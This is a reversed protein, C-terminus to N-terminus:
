QGTSWVHFRKRGCCRLSPPSSLARPSGSQPHPLRLILRYCTLPRDRLSLLFNRHKSTFPLLCMNITRSARYLLLITDLVYSCASTSVFANCIDCTLAEPCNLSDHNDQTKFHPSFKQPVNSTCTRLMSGTVLRGVNKQAETLLAILCKLLIQM